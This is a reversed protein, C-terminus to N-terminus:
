NGKGDNYKSKLYNFVEVFTRIFESDEPNHYLIREKIFEDFFTTAIDKPISCDQSIQEVILIDQKAKWEKLWIDFEREM